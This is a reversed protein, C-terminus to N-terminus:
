TNLDLNSTKFIHIHGQDSFVQFNKQDPLSPMLFGETSATLGTDEMACHATAAMVMAVMDVVDVMAVMVVMAVAMAMAQDVMAM